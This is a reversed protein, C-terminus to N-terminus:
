RKGFFQRRFLADVDALYLTAAITAPDHLVVDGSKHRIFCRLVFRLFGRLRCRSGLRHQLALFAKRICRNRLHALHNGFSQTFAFEARRM